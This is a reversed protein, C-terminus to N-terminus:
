RSGGAVIQRVRVMAAVQEEEVYRASTLRTKPISLLARVDRKGTLKKLAQNIANLSAM